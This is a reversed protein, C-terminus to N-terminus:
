SASAELGEVSESRGEPGRLVALVLIAAGAVAWCAVPAWHLLPAYEPLKPLGAAVAAMRTFAGVALASFMLGLVKGEAGRDAITLAASIASVLICGWAAGAAIQTAILINLNGALQVGFVALAGVLGAAGMVMLGGHRKVILCAPLMALNAGIWFLPSLWRLEDPKAFRLFLPDSNIMVHLQYGLALVCMSAAFIVTAKGASKAAERPKGSPASEPVLEREFKSLALATVLLSASSIVFPLRADQSVLAEGLYPSLADALGYGVMALAALFPISPRPHHKLLTLPPARLASSTVTWIVILAIFWGQAGPGTGAVFPLAVFAVCSLATVGGIFPGLMGVVPSLKDAAIGTATDSITFIVQDMMLVLIVASPAIGVKAALQPLYIVYIVWGLTFILQLVGLYVGIRSPNTTATPEVTKM